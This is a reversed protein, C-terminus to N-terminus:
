VLPWARTTATRRVWGSRAGSQRNGNPANAGQPSPASAKRENRPTAEPGRMWAGIRQAGRWLEAPNTARLQQAFATSLEDGGSYFFSVLGNHQGTPEVLHLKYQPM